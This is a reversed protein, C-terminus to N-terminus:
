ETYAPTSMDTAAPGCTTSNLFLIILCPVFPITTVPNGYVKITLSISMLGSFDPILVYCFEYFLFHLSFIVLFTQHWAGLGLIQVIYSLFRRNVLYLDNVFISVRDYHYFERYYKLISIFNGMPWAGTKCCGRVM